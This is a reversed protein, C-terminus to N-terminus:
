PVTAAQHYTLTSAETDLTAPLGLPLTLNDSQHGVPVGSLVPLSTFALRELVLDNLERRPGSESFDGLVLAAVGGLLGSHILQTLMRDIRYMPEGRDEIFLICGALSPFFPTALLHCITTLNGGLVPGEATGPRLCMAEPFHLSLPEPNSLTQWLSAVSAQDGKGLTSVTPGHFCVLGTKFHCALLLATLDSFGVLIKPYLQLQEFSLKPLIRMSGYGGRSCFLAKISPNQVFDNFRSARCEDDGALYRIHTEECEAAMVVTLGFEELITCGAELEQSPCPSAPALVGVQDGAKLAPPKLLPTMENQDNTM